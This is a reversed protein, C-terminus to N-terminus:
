RLFINTPLGRRELEAKLEDGSLKRNPDKVEMPSGNRGSVELQAKDTQGLRHKALHILMPVSGPGGSMAVNMLKRRLSANGKLHGDEWVQKYKAEGLRRILTRKSVRLVAAAEEVTCGITALGELTTIDIASKPRGRKKKEAEM